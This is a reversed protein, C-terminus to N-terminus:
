SAYISREILVPAHCLLNNYCVALYIEVYGSLNRQM